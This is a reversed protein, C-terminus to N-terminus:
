CRITMTIQATFSGVQMAGFECGAPKCRPYLPLRVGM